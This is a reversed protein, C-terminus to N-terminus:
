PDAQLSSCLDKPNYRNMAIAIGQKLISEVADAAAELVKELCEKETPTFGSLVHDVVDKPTGRPHGVGVRLRPFAQTGLHQILSKMGNHGGASGDTRLRLRGLNLDMEDYIVLVAAPDLKYWDVVARASQGSLNMYTEPELLRVKGLPGIGEGYRGQFKKQRELRIGWRQSLRDLVM